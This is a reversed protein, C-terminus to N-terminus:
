TCTRILGDHGVGEDGIRVDEMTGERSSGRLYGFSVADAECELVAIFYNVGAATGGNGAKAVALGFNEVCDCVM